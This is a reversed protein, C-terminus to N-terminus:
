FAAAKAVVTRFATRRILWEAVILNLPWGCIALTISLLPDRTLLLYPMALFRVSVAGFTLAYSRIMWARHEDFRRQRIKAFAIATVIPWAISLTAFGAVVAYFSTRLAPPIADLIRLSLPLGSISGIAVASVYVRGLVRHARQRKTGIFQLPGLILAVIGCSIHTLLLVRRHDFLYPAVGLVARGEDSAFTDLLIPLVFLPRAFVLYRASFIATALALLAMVRMAVRKPM